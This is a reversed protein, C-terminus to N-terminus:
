TVKFRRQEDNGMISLKMDVLVVAVSFALRRVAVDFSAGIASRSGVTLWMFGIHDVVRVIKLPRETEFQM